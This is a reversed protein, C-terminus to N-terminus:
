EHARDPVDDDRDVTVKGMVQKDGSPAMAVSKGDAFVIRGSKLEQNSTANVEVVTGKLAIMDYANEEKKPAM